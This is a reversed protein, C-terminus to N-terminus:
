CRLGISVNPAVNTNHNIILKLQGTKIYIRIDRVEM